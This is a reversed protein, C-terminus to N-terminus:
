PSCLHLGCGPGALQLRRAQGRCWRGILGPSPLSFSGGFSLLAQGPMSMPSRRPSWLYSPNASSYLSLGELLLRASAPSLTLQPCPGALADWCWQCVGPSRLLIPTALGLFGALEASLGQLAPLSCLPAGQYLLPHLGGVSCLPPMQTEKHSRQKGPGPSYAVGGLGVGCSHKENITFFM